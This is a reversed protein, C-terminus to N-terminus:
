GYLTLLVNMLGPGALKMLLMTGLVTQALFFLIVGAISTGGVMAATQSRQNADTVRTYIQDLHQKVHRRYLPLALMSRAVALLLNGFSAAMMWPTLADPSMGGTIASGSAALIWLYSPLAMLFELGFFALGWKWMKRFFFYLPGFFLASVSFAGKRGTAVMQKFVTLYYPASRGVYNAWDKLPVGDLDEGPNFQGALFGMQWNWRERDADSATEPGVQQYHPQGYAAQASPGTQEQTQIPAGCRKCFRSDAPTSSGCSPCLVEGPRPAAPPEPKWEFGSGHKDSFVCDGAQKYCERHYPAGCEPCVVVDDNPEIPKNCFACKHGTHDFM